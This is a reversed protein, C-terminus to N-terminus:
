CHIASERSRNIIEKIEYKIDPTFIDTPPIPRDVNLTMSLLMSELETQEDPLMGFAIYFSLRCEPNICALAGPLARTAHEFWWVNYSKALKDVVQGSRRYLAYLEQFFPVGSCLAAGANGVAAIWSSVCLNHTFPVLAISDKKLVDTPNRVMRHVGNGMHLPNSQCFVIKELEYVPDEMVMTYGMEKFWHCVQANFREVDRREMFLVCDDGNNVLKTSVGVYKSYAHMMGCMLLCNGSSTNMDGSMRCGEVVYSAKGDPCIGKGENVLQMRLLSALDKSHNWGNYISHEWALAQKSCHQDFRSADAGIAVPDKFSYWKSAILEGVEQVNLGKAVTVEGWVNQIGKYLLKESHKNLWQALMANYRPSRPSIVRPASDGKETQDIKECKVFARVKADDKCVPSRLLSDVADQYVRQKRGKYMLPIEELPIPATPPLCRFLQRRFEGLRANFIGDLPRPPRRYAGQKDRIYLVREAIGRALNVLSKNHVVVRRGVNLGSLQIYRRTSM